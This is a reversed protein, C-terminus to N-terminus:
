GALLNDAAFPRLAEVVTQASPYRAEPTRELCRLCIAELAPAVDSNLSRPPPLRGDQMQRLAKLQTAAWFPPLGTLMEYFMAGLAYVDAAPGIADPNGEVQEPAM